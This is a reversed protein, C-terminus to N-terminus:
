TLILRRTAVPPGTGNMGCAPTVCSSVTHVYRIKGGEVRFMHSDPMPQQGRMRDLGPFGLFMDVVGMEEDVVYRRNTVVISSPMGAPSCTDTSLNRGAGTYAGGELRACPTGWPVIINTDNFRDFYADGAAQIVARSDRKEKPIPAWNELSNWYLYGTANFAWDGQDTVISEILTAKHDTFLMRTGIVYPHSSKAVILETFTACLTTDFITRNHDIKLPQSLLGTKLDVKEENETYTVNPAIATLSSSQGNTQATIYSNIADQLLARTCHASATAALTISVLASYIMNVVTTKMILTSYIPAHFNQLM